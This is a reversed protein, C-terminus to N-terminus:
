SFLDFLVFYKFYQVPLPHMWAYVYHIYTHAYMYVRVCMCFYTHVYTIEVPADTCMRVYMQSVYLNHVCLVFRAAKVCM